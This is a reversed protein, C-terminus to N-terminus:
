KNLRGTEKLWMMIDYALKEDHTVIQEDIRNWLDAISMKYIDFFRTDLEFKDVEYQLWYRLEDLKEEMEYDPVVIEWDLSRLLGVPLTIEEIKSPLDNKGIVHYSYGKLDKVRMSADNIEQNKVIDFATDFDLHERVVKYYKTM